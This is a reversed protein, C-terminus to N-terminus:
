KRKTTAKLRMAPTQTLSKLAAEAAFPVELPAEVDELAKRVPRLIEKLNGGLNIDHLVHHVGERLSLSDAEESLKRLLPVLAPRGIAILGEAALWRVDFMKDQLANILAETAEPDGIQGLTKAAEWRKYDYKSTLAKELPAVAKGGIIVLARRARVRILGEKSGLDVVLARVTSADAHLRWDVEMEDLIKMAEWRMQRNSSALAEVLCRTASDGAAILSDHARVRKDKNKSPLDAILSRISEPGCPNTVESVNDKSDQARNM